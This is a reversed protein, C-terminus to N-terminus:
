NEQCVSKMLVEAENKESELIALSLAKGFDSCAEDPKNLNLLTKGRNLLADVYVPNISLATNLDQLSKNYEGTQRHIFGLSCWAIFSKPNLSIAKEFDYIAASYNKQLSYIYGRQEYARRLSPNIKLAESYDSIAKKYDKEMKYANGRQMLAFPNKGHVNMVHNWLTFSNEWTKVQRFTFLGLFIFYGVVITLLVSKLRPFTVIFHNFFLALLLSFGITAPYVYRDSALVPVGPPILFLGLNFIFFGVAWIVAKNQRFYKYMLGGATIIAIISLSCEIILGTTLEDPMPNFTTLNVPFLLKALYFVLAKGAILIRLPFSFETSNSLSGHQQHFWLTLLGFIFSLLFFPMKEQFSERISIRRNKLYDTLVLVLPLSVASAKSLLAAISLIFVGYLLFTKNRALFLVYLNLASLYFLVFLLNKRETAWAVSEVHLVHIGFMLAVIVATGQNQFLKHILWFVLLSNILHLVLNTSHFVIPDYGNVSYDLALSLLVFPQYLGLFPQSFWASINAWSFSHILPNQTIYVDDDWNVFGNQFIPFYSLLTAALILLPLFWSHQTIKM